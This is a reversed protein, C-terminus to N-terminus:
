DLFICLATEERVFYKIGYAKTEVRLACIM